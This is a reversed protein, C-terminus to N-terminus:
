PNSKKPRVIFKKSVIDVLLMVLSIIWVSYFLYLIFLVSVIDVIIFNLNAPYFFLSNLIIAVLLAPIPLVFYAIKEKVPALKKLIFFSIIIMLYLVFCLFYDKRVTGSFFIMFPDIVVIVFHLVCASIPILLKNLNM